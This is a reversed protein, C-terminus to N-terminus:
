AVQRRGFPVEVRLGVTADADGRFTDPLRYDFLTRLPSAIAIKAIPTARGMFGIFGTSVHPIETLIRARLNPKGHKARELSPIRPLLLLIMQWLLM